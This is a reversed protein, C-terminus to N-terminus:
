HTEEAAINPGYKLDKSPLPQPLFDFINEVGFNAAREKPKLVKKVDCQM